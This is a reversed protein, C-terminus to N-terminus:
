HDGSGNVLYYRLSDSILQTLLQVSFHVIKNLIYVLIHQCAITDVLM